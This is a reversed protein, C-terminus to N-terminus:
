PLISTFAWWDFNLIRNLCTLCGLILNQTDFSFKGVRKVGLLSTKQGLYTIKSYIQSISIKSKQATQDDTFYPSFFTCFLSEQPLKVSNSSFWKRPSLDVLLVFKRTNKSKFRSKSDMHCIKDEFFRIKHYFVLLLEGIM